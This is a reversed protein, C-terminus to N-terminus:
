ALAKQLAALMKEAEALKDADLAVKVARLQAAAEPMQKIKDAKSKLLDM